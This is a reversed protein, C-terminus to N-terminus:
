DDVGLGCVDFWANVDTCGTTEACALEGESPELSCIFVCSENEPGVNCANLLAVCRGQCDAAPAPQNPDPGSPTPSPAPEPAPEEKPALDGHHLTGTAEYQSSTGGVLRRLASCGGALFRDGHEGARAALETECADIASAKAQMADSRSEGKATFTEVDPTSGDELRVVADFSPTSEVVFASGSLVTKREGCTYGGLREVGARQAATAVWGDCSARWAAHAIEESSGTGQAFGPVALETGDPPAIWIRPDSKYGSVSGSIFSKPEDCTGGLMREAYLAKARRLTSACTETWGELGKADGFRVPGMVAGPEFALPETGKPLKAVITATGTSAFQQMSGGVVQRKAGCAVDVVEAPAALEALEAAWGDCADKWSTEAAAGALLDGRIAATIEFRVEVLPKQTLHDETAPPEAECAALFLVPAIAPLYKARM